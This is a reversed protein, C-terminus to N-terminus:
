AVEVLGVLGVVMHEVVHCHFMWHGPNDAVFAVEVQENEELVVTDSLYSDFVKKNSNLVRFTHGHFHIPHPYQTNNRIRFLYSDGLRLAAIQNPYTCGKPEQGPATKLNWFLPEGNYDTGVGWEVIMDIHEAQDLDPELVPNKPLTPLSGPATRRGEVVQFRALVEKEDRLEYQMGVENPVIFGIDVRMGTGLLFGDVPLRKDIPNADIAIIEASSLGFQLPYQLTNDANIARLRVAANAEIEYVPATKGNTTYVLGPTGQRAAYRRQTLPYYQGDQELHWNKFLLTIDQDFLLPEPEEVIMAGVLGRGMQTVSNAHSHYWMTGADPPTFEYVFTEGPQIPAQGTIPVGDMYVPIRLGHWHVTTEEDLNNLVEIRVPKGQTARIVPAPISGNYTAVPTETNPVIEALADQVVM